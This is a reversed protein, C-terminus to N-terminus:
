AVIGFFVLFVAAVWVWRPQGTRQTLATLLDNFVFATVIAWIFPPLAATVHLLLLVALGVLIVITWIKASTSFKVEDVPPMTGPELHARKEIRLTAPSNEDARGIQM